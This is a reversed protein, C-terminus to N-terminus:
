GKSQGDMIEGLLSDLEEGHFPKALMAYPHPQKISSFGTILVVPLDALKARIRDALEVGNMDPMAVDAVLVDFPRELVMDLAASASAAEVVEHGCENLFAATVERVGADDDVLLIRAQRSRRQEKPDSVTDAQAAESVPFYLDVSTGEGLSTRIDVKGGSQQAFGYVMSLGLGTGQGVDKTTFFPEFVRALVDPPIGTGTDRVSVMVHRGPELGLRNKRRLDIPRTAIAVTGGEPMADRANICLNLIALELQDRDLMVTGLDAALEHSIRIETGLTRNLLDQMELVLQNVDVPQKNLQSVRSFNLLRQTLSAGRTAALHANDLLRGLKPDAGVHRRALDLSGMVVMLLNNFDHAVGGALTGLAQMKDAQHLRREMEKRDSVDREITALYRPVGQHDALPIRRAEIWRTPGDPLREERLEDSPAANAMALEDARQVSQADCAGPLDQERRNLADPISLGLADAKARNLRVFRGARDKFSIAEESHDLLGHLLTREVELERALRYRDAASSVMSTLIAPEWPKPVYGVIRGKNLAGIVADLDAYGTLLIAEAGTTERARALFADGTMGPMRQDSVIVAIDPEDRLMDLASFPSNASLVRYDEEFLDRLAVLIDEEDDVILLTSRPNRDEM